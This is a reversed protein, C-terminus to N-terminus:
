FDEEESGNPWNWGFMACLMGTYLFKFGFGNKPFIYYCRKVLRSTYLYDYIQKVMNKALFHLSPSHHQWQAEQKYMCTRILFFVSFLVFWYSKKNTTKQNTLTYHLLLWHLFAKIDNISWPNLIPLLIHLVKCKWEM